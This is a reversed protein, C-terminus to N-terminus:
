FDVDPNVGGICHNLETSYIVGVGPEAVDIKESKLSEYLKSVIDRDYSIGQITKTESLSNRVDMTAMGFVPIGFNEKM